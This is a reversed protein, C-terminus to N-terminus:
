LILSLNPFLFLLNLEFFVLAFVFYDMDREFDLYGTMLNHFFERTMEMTSGRITTLAEIGLTWKLLADVSADEVARFPDYVM